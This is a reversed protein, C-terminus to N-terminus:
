GGSGGGRSRAWKVAYRLFAQLNAFYPGGVGGLTSGGAMNQSLSSGGQGCAFTYGDAPAGAALALGITGGAGALTNIVMPQGLSQSMYTAVIRTLVDVSGGTAFPSIVTIPKTPWAAQAHAQSPASLSGAIAIGALLAARLPATLGGPAPFLSFLMPLVKLDTPRFAPLTAAEAILRARCETM